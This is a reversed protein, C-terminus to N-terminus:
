TEEQDSVLKVVRLVAIKALEERVVAQETDEDNGMRDKLRDLMEGATLGTACVLYVHGFRQEYLANGAALEALVKRDAGTTGSQEARSWSAERGAGPARDGIRPHASLAQLVDAGSLGRVAEQAAAALAAADAYPRMAAVRLAFAPAACCSLLEREAQPPSLANFAALDRRGPTVNPM